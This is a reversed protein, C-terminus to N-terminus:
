GEEPVVEVSIICPALEQGQNDLPVLQLLYRGPTLSSTYWFGLSENLKLTNGAAITTWDIAGTTSFEYKYSGFNEINVSGILEVTGSVSDGESPFTIETVGEICESTLMDQGVTATPRIVQNEAVPTGTSTAFPDPTPPSLQVVSPLRPGVVTVLLFEGIVLMILLTLGTTARILKRQAVTRELGFVSKQWERLGVSFKRGYILIGLILLLFVGIQYTVLGKIVGNILNTM